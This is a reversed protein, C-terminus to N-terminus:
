MEDRESSSELHRTKVIIEIIKSMKTHSFYYDDWKQGIGRCPGGTIVLKCWSPWSNPFIFDTKLSNMFFMKQHFCDFHFTNLLFTINFFAKIFDRSAGNIAAPHLKCSDTSIQTKINNIIYSIAPLLRAKQCWWGNHAGVCFQFRFFSLSHCCKHHQICITRLNASVFFDLAQSTLFKIPTIFVTLYLHPRPRETDNLIFHSSCVLM